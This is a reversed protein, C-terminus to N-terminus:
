DMCQQLLRLAWAPPLGKLAAKAIAPPNDRFLAIAACCALATVLVHPYFALPCVFMALRRSPNWSFHEPPTQGFTEFGFQQLNDWYSRVFRESDCRDTSFAFLSCLFSTLIFCWGVSWGDSVLGIDSAYDAAYLLPVGVFLTTALGRLNMVIM